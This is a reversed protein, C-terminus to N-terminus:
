NRKIIKIIFDLQDYDHYTRDEWGNEPIGKQWSDITVGYKHQFVLYIKGVNQRRHILRNRIMALEKYYPESVNTQVKFLKRIEWNAYVKFVIVEGHKM